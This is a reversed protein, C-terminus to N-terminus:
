AVERSTLPEPEACPMLADAAAMRVLTGFDALFTEGTDTRRVLVSRRDAEDVERRLLGYEGLRDLARTVAPKSINLSHALGRVTHPPPTRYVTLLLAMQRSSLDPIDRRVTEVIALRWLDLSQDCTLKLPVDM